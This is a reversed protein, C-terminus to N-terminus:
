EVVKCCSLLENGSQCQSVLISCLASDGNSHGMVEAVPSSLLGVVATASSVVCTGVHDRVMAGFGMRFEFYCLGVNTNLKFWGNVLVVWQSWSSSSLAFAVLKMIPGLSDCDRGSSNCHWIFHDQVQQSRTMALIEADEEVSFLVDTISKNWGGNALKLDSTM